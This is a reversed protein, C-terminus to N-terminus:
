AEPEDSSNVSVQTDSSHVSCGDKKTVIDMPEAVFAPVAASLKEQIVNLEMASACLKQAVVEITSAKAEIAKEIGEMKDAKAEVKKDITTEEESSFINNIASGVAQTALKASEKGIEIGHLAVTKTADYYSKSLARQQDNLSVVKGDITMDGNAAISAKSGNKLTVNIDSLDIKAESIAKNMDTEIDQAVKTKIKDGISASNDNSCATILATSLLLPFILAIKKM